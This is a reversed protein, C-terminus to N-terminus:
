FFLVIALISVFACQWVFVAPITCNNTTIRAFQVSAPTIMPKFIAPLFLQHLVLRVVGEARADRRGNTRKLEVKANQSMLFPKVLFRLNPAAM